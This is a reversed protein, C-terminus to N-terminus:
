HFAIDTEIMNKHSTQVFQQNTNRCHDPNHSNNKTTQYVQSQTCTTMQVDTNMIPRFLLYNNRTVCTNHGFIPSSPV